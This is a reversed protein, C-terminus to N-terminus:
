KKTETQRCKVAYGVNTGVVSITTLLAIIEVPIKDGWKKCVPTWADILGKKDEVPLHFDMDQRKAIIRCVMAQGTDISQVIARATLVATEQSVPALATSPAQSLDDPKPEQTPVAEADKGIEEIIKLEEPSASAFPTKRGKDEPTPTPTPTPTPKEVPKVAESSGQAKSIDEQKNNDPKDM